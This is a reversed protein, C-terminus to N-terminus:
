KITFTADVPMGPKLLHEPNDVTIKVAYVTAKRGQNTQVNRPTFEAEDSIYKIKGSFIQDPYSDTTLSVSDGIMVKGYQDEPLYVILDLTDLQAIQMVAGGAVVLEGVELNRSLVVGDMPSKVAARDVQLDALHLAQEAQALGAEAQEAQSEAALLASGAAKVQPSAFGTKLGLFAVNANDLAIQSVSVRARAELVTEASNTTLMRQYDLQAAELEAKAADIAETAANKLHSDNITEVKTLTQEAITYSIQADALRKEAAIFDKSSTNRLVSDLEKMNISLEQNATDVQTQAAALLEDKQFYWNPRFNETAPVTWTLDRVKMEQDLAAYLVLDYQAQASEALRQAADVAAKASQVAAAAQDRQAVLFEDDLMFLQQGQSVSQGEDVLVEVVKGSLESAVSGKVASLFGSATLQNNEVPACATLTLVLMIVQIILSTQKRKM